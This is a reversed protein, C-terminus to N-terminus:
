KNAGSNLLIQAYVSLKIKLFILWHLMLLLVHYLIYSSWILTSVAQTIFMLIFTLHQALQIDLAFQHEGTISSFFHTPIESM